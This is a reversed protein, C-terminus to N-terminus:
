LSIVKRPNQHEALKWMRVGARPHSVNIWSERQNYLNILIVTYGYVREHIQSVHFRNGEKSVITDGRVLERTTIWVGTRPLPKLDERGANRKDWAKGRRIICRNCSCANINHGNLGKALEKSLFAIVSLLGIIVASVMALTALIWEWGTLAWYWSM